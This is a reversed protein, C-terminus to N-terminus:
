LLLVTALCVPGDCAVGVGLARYQDDRDFLRDRDPARAIFRNVFERPVDDADIVKGILETVHTEPLLAAEARQRPTRGQPDIHDFFGLNLMAETHAKALRCLDERLELFALGRRNRELNVLDALRAEMAQIDESSPEKARHLALREDAADRILQKASEAVEDVSEPTGQPAARKSRSSRTLSEWDIDKESFGFDQELQEIPVLALLQYTTDTVKLALRMAGPSLQHEEVWGIAWDGHRQLAAETSRAFIGLFILLVLNLAIGWGAPEWSFRPAALIPLGFVIGMSFAFVKDLTEFRPYVFAGIVHGAILAMAVWGAVMLVTLPSPIYRKLSRLTSAMM